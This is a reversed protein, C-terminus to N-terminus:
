WRRGTRAQAPEGLSGGRSRRIVYVILTAFLVSLVIGAGNRGFVLASVLGALFSGAIGVGITAWISMPDRGPLALRALAGVILGTFLLVIIYLIVSM